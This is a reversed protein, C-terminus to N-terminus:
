NQRIQLNEIVSTLDLPLKSELVVLKNTGPHLLQLASAHLFMRALGYKRMDRNFQWDGYRRDGAIPHGILQAHRRAQHTKGTVLDIEVLTCEAFAMAPKFESIAISDARRNDTDRRRNLPLDVKRSQTELTGQVLALYIKTISKEGEGRWIAHLKRLTRENKALVLIGSTDKDLRHVLEIYKFDPRLARLAEIVGTNHRSGSHVAVGAPKDIVVIDDDEHLIRAIADALAPSPAVTKTKEAQFVPPIRVSDGPFLRQKPKSRGGNIRVQGTRILKYIRSHPINPLRSILFNDLRRGESDADILLIRAKHNAKMSYNKLFKRRITKLNTYLEYYKPTAATQQVQVLSALDVWLM